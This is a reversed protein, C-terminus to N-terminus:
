DVPVVELNRECLGGVSDKYVPILYDRHSDPDTWVYVQVNGGNAITGASSLYTVPATTERRGSKWANMCVAVSIVIAILVVSFVLVWITSPVVRNDRTRRPQYEKVTKLRRGELLFPGPRPAKRNTSEPCTDWSFYEIADQTYM